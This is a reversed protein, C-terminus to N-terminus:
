TDGEDLLEDPDITEDEEGTMRLRSASPDEEMRKSGRPAFDEEVREPLNAQERIFQELHEDPILAGSGVMKSIFEGFRALDVSEVDGHMLYPYDTIGGFHSGNIDILRPIAKSNFAECIMDLYAGVAMSFIKTKDSSLSFSGVQQHGLLLFDALTTMAIRTDYREIIANTDFQRSGGTSLLKLEWGFPLVLGELSDRRINAVMADMRDHAAAMKPDERDWIDVGEPAVVVPFGALDREVGIGEIEQLRKKFRYSRYANRLISRGEPNDKRSETRFMLLKEMPITIRESYPPVVQIMGQLNDREDYVWEFLTDQARIPLKQWGILGDAYKSHLQAEKKRGMRRKYVIEHASWGFTLFSLIESVVDTWSSDMDDMCSQVFDAAEQDIPSDGGPQVAWTAQRILMKIAFLMAGAVEDNESMERFAEIGRVGRLERLFEESFVGNFRKQGIRGVENQRAM